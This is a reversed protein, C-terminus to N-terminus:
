PATSAHRVATRRVHEIVDLIARTVVQPADLPVWHGSEDALVHRGQTSRESLARDVELRSPPATRASIVM